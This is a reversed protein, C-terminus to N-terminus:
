RQLASLFLFLVFVILFVISCGILVKETQKREYRDSNKGLAGCTPCAVAKTSMRGGCEECVTMAMVKGGLLFLLVWGRGSGCGRGSRADRPPTKPRILSCAVNAKLSVLRMREHAM